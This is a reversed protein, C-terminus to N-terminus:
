PDPGKLPHPCLGGTERRSPPPILRRRSPRFAPIKRPIPFRDQCLAPHEGRFAAAIGRASSTSPIAPSPSNRGRSPTCSWGRRPFARRGREGARRCSLRIPLVSRPRNGKAVRWFDPAGSQLAKARLAFLASYACECRGKGRRALCRRLHGGAGAHRCGFRVIRASLGRRARGATSTNHCPEPAEPSLPEPSPAQRQPSRPQPGQPRSFRRSRPSPALHTAGTLM